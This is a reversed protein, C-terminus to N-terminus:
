TAPVEIDAVVREEVPNAARAVYDRCDQETGSGYRYAWRKAGSIASTEEEYVYFIKNGDNKNVGETIRFKM